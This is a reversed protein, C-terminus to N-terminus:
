VESHIKKIALTENLEKNILDEPFEKIYESWQKLQTEGIAVDSVVPDVLLILTKLKEVKREAINARKMWKGWKLFNFECSKKLTKYGTDKSMM